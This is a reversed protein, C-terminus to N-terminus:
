AEPAAAIGPGLGDRRHRTDIGGSDFARVNVRQSDADPLLAAGRTPSDTSSAM